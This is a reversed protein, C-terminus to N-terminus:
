AGSLGPIWVRIIETYHSVRIPKNRVLLLIRHFIVVGVLM